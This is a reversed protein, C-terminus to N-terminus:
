WLPPHGQGYNSMYIYSQSTWASSCWRWRGDGSINSVIKDGQKRIASSTAGHGARHDALLGALAPPVAASKTYAVPGGV